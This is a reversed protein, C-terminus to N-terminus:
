LAFNELFGTETTLVEEVEVEVEVVVVVDSSQYASHSL